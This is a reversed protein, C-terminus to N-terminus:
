LQRRLNAGRLAGFLHMGQAYLSALAQSAAELEDMDVARHDDRRMLWVAPSTEGEVTGSKLHVGHIASHRVQFLPPLRALWERTAGALSARSDELDRTRKKAEKVVDGAQATPNSVGLESAVLALVMEVRGAAVVIMGLATLARPEVGLFSDSM